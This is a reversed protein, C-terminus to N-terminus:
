QSAVIITFYNDAFQAITGKAIIYFANIENLIGKHILVSFVLSLISPWIYTNKCLKYMISDTERM